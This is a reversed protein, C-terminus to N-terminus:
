AAPDAGDGQKSKSPKLGIEYGESVHIGSNIVIRSLNIDPYAAVILGIEEIRMPLTGRRLRGIRALPIGTRSSRQADTEEAPEARHCLTYIVGHQLRAALRRAEFLDESEGEPPASRWQLSRDAGFDSPRRAYSRPQWTEGHRHAM